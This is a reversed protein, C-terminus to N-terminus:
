GAQSVSRRQHVSETERGISRNASSRLQCISRASGHISFFLFGPDFRVADRPEFRGQNGWFALTLDFRVRWLLGPVSRVASDLHRPPPRPNPPPSGGGSFHDSKLYTKSMLSSQL